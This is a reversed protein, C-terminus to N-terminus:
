ASAEAARGRRRGWAALLWGVALGLAAGALTDSLYHSHGLMRGCAVFVALPYFLFSWEPYRASLVAALAFSTTAHGSPFSHWDSDFTPMLGQWLPQNLRPRPRGVLHKFVQVSLGSIVVAGLGLLGLRRLPPRRRAWGWLALAVCLAIQVGGLGLWYAATAWDQVVPNRGLSRALQDVPADWDLFIVLALLGVLALLIALSRALGQLRGASTPRDGM